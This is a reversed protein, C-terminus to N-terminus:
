VGRSMRKRVKELRDALKSPGTGPAHRQAEYRELIALEKGGEKQKSYIIALQEYYWPAVGWGEASAESETAAVLELLLREAAEFQGGRKLQRVDDVYTTYHRGRVHGAKPV